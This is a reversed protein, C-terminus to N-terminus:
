SRPTDNMAVRDIVTSGSSQCLLAQRCDCISVIYSFLELTGYRDIWVLVSYYDRRRSRMM